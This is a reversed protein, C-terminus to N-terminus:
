CKHDYGDMVWIHWMKGPVYAATAMPTCTRPLPSCIAASLTHRMDSLVTREDLLTRLDERMAEREQEVVVLSARVDQLEARVGAEKAQTEQADLCGNIVAKSLIRCICGQTCM